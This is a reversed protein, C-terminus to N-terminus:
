KLIVNLFISLVNTSHKLSVLGLKEKTGISILTTYCLNHAIMISPYLSSFDLTAIPETYYGRVPEIVTAGEYSQDNDGQGQYTPMFYNAERAQM